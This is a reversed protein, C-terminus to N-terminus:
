RPPLLKNVQEVGDQFVREAGARDPAYEQIMTDRETPSVMYFVYYGGLLVLALAILATIFNM